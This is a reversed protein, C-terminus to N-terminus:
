VEINSANELSVPDCKYVGKGRLAHPKCFFEDCDYKNMYELQLNSPLAGFSEGPLINFKHKASVCWHKRSAKSESSIMSTSSMSTSGFTCMLFVLLLAFM